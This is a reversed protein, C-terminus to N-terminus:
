DLGHEQIKKRLTNRNLGLVQALKLQSKYKKLGAEILPEEYLGLFERYANNGEINEFLYNYLIEKIEEQNITKYLLQRYLSAKLSKINKSLDLTEINLEIPYDLMLEKQTKDQFFEILLNLDERENLSPMKYIFAFKKEIKSTSEIHNAIAIIRRNEFNIKEFNLLKEFNYIILENNNELALELEIKNNADVYISQPFLSKILTKKGTFEEGYLLSSVFLSKTLTLGKIINDIQASNSLFQVPKM